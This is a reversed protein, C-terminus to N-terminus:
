PEQYAGTVWDFETQWNRGPTRWGPSQPHPRGSKEMDRIGLVYYYGKSAPAGYSGPPYRHYYFNGSSGYLAGTPDKPDKIAKRLYRKTVLPSIFVGDRDGDWEAYDKDTNPPFNEFDLRYRTLADNLIRANELRIKDAATKKTDFYVAVFVGVLVLLIVLVVWREISALGVSAM